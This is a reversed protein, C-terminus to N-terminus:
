ELGENLARSVRDFTEPATHELWVLFELADLRRECNEIKSVDPQELGLAQALQSQSLKAQQRFVVLRSVLQRYRRDHISAATRVVPRFRSKCPPTNWFRM